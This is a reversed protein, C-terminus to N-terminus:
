EVTLKLGVRDVNKLMSKRRRTDLVYRGNAFSVHHIGLCNSQSTPLFRSALHEEYCMGDLRDIEMLNLGFGYMGHSNNQSPRYLRNDIQVIPGANRAHASGIIVPNLPHPKISSLDPGNVAYLQLESSHEQFVKTDSLNTFLWWQDDQKFMMSDAVKEGEFATAYLEWELPFRTARWVELQNSGQTEPMMFIEDKDRFVFPYSLHYDRRLVTGLPTFSDGDLTGVEIWALDLNSGQAEYFIYTKGGDSFLFPDAMSFRSRPLDVSKNPDFNEMDGYGVSLQWFMDGAGYKDRISSILKSAVARAFTTAYALTSALGPPEPSQLPADKFQPIGKAFGVEALSKLIFSVSKEAIFAANMVVSVKPNYSTRSVLHAEPAAATRAVIEVQTLAAKGHGSMLAGADPASSGGYRLSWEGLRAADLKRVPLTAGGLALAIDVVVDGMQCNLPELKALISRADHQEYPAARNRWLASEARLVLNTLLPVKPAEPGVDGAIMGVLDFRADAAIRDILQAQWDALNESLPGVLAIKLKAEVGV